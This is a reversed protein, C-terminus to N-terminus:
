TYAEKNYSLNHLIADIGSVFGHISFYLLQRCENDTLFGYSRILSLLHYDSIGIQLQLRRIKEITGSPYGDLCSNFHECFSSLYLLLAASHKGQKEEKRALQFYTSPKSM